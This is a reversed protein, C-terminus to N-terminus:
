LVGALTAVGEAIHDPTLGAFGLLFGVTDPPTQYYPAIPYVTAGRAKCAAIVSPGRDAPLDDFRCVLHTGANAGSITVRDGFHDTLAGVLATRNAAYRRNCRRLHRRYAGSQMFEALVRQPLSPNGRDTLWKASQFAEVLPEPLVMYGIRLSPFLSKAFTGIYIVHDLGSLGAICEVPQCDYRFESDYDDEILICGTDRAYALLELRRGAPMVAGTPFQHSPTLYVLRANRTPIADVVLGEADVAVPLLEAGAASFAQRAGQYCPEEVVVRDGVGLMLRAALDLAQQSGSTILVQDPDADLGRQVALHRCLAERLERLGAPDAYDFCGARLARDQLRRLEQVTKEDPRAVGYEFNLATPVDHEALARARRGAEVIRRATDNLRTKGPRRVSPPRGAFPADPPLAAVFTGSRDRSTLYGEAELQEYAGVVVNRSIGLDRALRRSGPLRDGAALRGARLAGRLSRALQEGLGGQGDLTVIMQVQRSKANQCKRPALHFGLM